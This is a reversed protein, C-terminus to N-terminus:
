SKFGIKKKVTHKFYDIALRYSEKGLGSIVGMVVPSIVSVQRFPERSYINSLHVEIVPLPLAEIADRIAISYHSYAGPNIVLGEINEEPLAQIRDIIEGEINSQFYLIEHEPFNEVLWTLILEFDEKGYFKEERTALRNLNPGNLIQIKM